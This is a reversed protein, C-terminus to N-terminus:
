FPATSLTGLLAAHMANSKTAIGSGSLIGARPDVFGYVFEATGSPLDQAPITTTWPGFPFWFDTLMEVDLAGRATWESTVAGDSRVIVGSSTAFCGSACGMRYDRDAPYLMEMGLLDYQTPMYDDPDRGNPVACYSMISRPDPVTLLEAGSIPVRDAVRGKAAWCQDTSLTQPMTVNGFFCGNFAWAPCKPAPSCSSSSGACAQCADLIAQEGPCLPGADVRQHEHLLGLGHGVEHVATAKLRESGDSVRGSITCSAGQGTGCFGFADGHQLTIGMAGATCGEVFGMGPVQGWTEGLGATVWSKMTNFDPISLGAARTFCLSLPMPWATWANLSHAASPQEAQGLRQDDEWQAESSCGGLVSLACVAVARSSIRSM